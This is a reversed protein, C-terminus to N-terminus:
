ISCLTSPLEPKELMVPLARIIQITVATHQSILPLPFAASVQQSIRAIFHTPIKQQRFAQM